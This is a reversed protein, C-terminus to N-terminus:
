VEASPGVALLRQWSVDNLPIRRDFTLASNCLPCFSVVIPVGGLTDNAIEHWTLIQLPYARAEGDVRVVFPEIGVAGIEGDRQLGHQLLHRGAIKGAHDHEAASAVIALSADLFGHAESASRPHPYVRPHTAVRLFEYAIGWTILAKAVTTEGFKLGYILAIFLSAFFIAFVALWALVASSRLLRIRNIIFDANSRISM